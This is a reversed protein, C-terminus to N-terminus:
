KDKEFVLLTEGIGEIIAFQKLVFHAYPEPVPPVGPIVMLYQNACTSFVMSLIKLDPTHVLFEGFRTINGFERFYM